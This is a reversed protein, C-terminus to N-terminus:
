WISGYRNFLQYKLSIIISLVQQTLFTILVPYKYSGFLKRTAIIKQCQVFNWIEGSLTFNFSSRYFVCDFKILCSKLCPMQKSPNLNFFAENFKLLSQKSSSFDISNALSIPSTNMRTTSFYIILSSTVILLYNM